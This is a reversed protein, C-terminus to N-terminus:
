YPVRTFRANADKCLPDSSIIDLYLGQKDTNRNTQIWFVDFRSFRDVHGWMVGHFTLLFPRVNKQNENIQFDGIYFNLDTSFKLITKDFLFYKFISGCDFTSISSDLILYIIFRHQLLMYRPEDMRRTILQLM